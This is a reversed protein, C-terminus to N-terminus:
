LPLAPSWVPTSTEVWFQYRDNFLLLLVETTYLRAINGLTRQAATRFGQALSDVIAVDNGDGALLLSQINGVQPKSYPLLVTQVQKIRRHYVFLDNLFRHSEILIQLLM